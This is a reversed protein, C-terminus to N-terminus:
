ELLVIAYMGEPMSGRGIITHIEQTKVVVGSVLIATKIM